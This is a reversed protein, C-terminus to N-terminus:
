EELRVLLQNLEMGLIKQIQIQLHSHITTGDITISYPTSNVGQLVTYVAQEVKAPQVQLERDM